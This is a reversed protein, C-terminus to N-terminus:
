PLRPAGRPAFVAKVSRHRARQVSAEIAGAYDELPFRHTVLKALPARTSALLDLTVAFTRARGGRWEEESYYATGAVTIERHWVFTLDLSPTVGAAGVLVLRGGPATVRLADDLSEPSGVCDFVRPFGGSLYPRGLVPRLLTSSTAAAARDLLPGGGGTRPSWARHAGLETAIPLQYDEVTFLTVRAGPALERLAWVVGFAIPGGGIVLVEEGDHPVNRMVAHVAVALPETLVAVEDALGDPVRHLMSRHAVMSEAFGGPWDPCYGLVTGKPLVSGFRLCTGNEGVACRACPALGRAECGLVPDVVVRDGEKIGSKRSTADVEAVDALVEHGLVAADGSGLTVASMAPSMKFFIAGLDSGCLGALRPQLLSWEPTPRTPAPVDRLAFCSGPGYFLRPARKAGIAKALLYKAISLDYVLARM